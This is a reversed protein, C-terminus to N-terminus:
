RRAECHAVLAEMESLVGDLTKLRREHEARAARLAHGDIYDRGNPAVERVRAIATEVALVAISYHEALRKPSSGNLNIFPLTTM